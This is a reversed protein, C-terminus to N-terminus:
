EGVEAEGTCDDIITDAVDPFIAAFNEKFRLAGEKTMDSVAVNGTVLLDGSHKPTGDMRDYIYKLAAVDGSMAMALLKRAVAEKASIKSDNMTVSEESLVENLINTMTMSKPPKGAPNGSVGKIWAPNGVKGYKKEGM